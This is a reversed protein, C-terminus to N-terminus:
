PSVRKLAQRSLEHKEDLETATVLAEYAGAYDQVKERCLGLFCYFDVSPLARPIDGQRVLTEILTHAKDFENNRYYKKALGMQELSKQLPQDPLLGQTLAEIQEKLRDLQDQPKALKIAAQWYLKAQPYNGSLYCVQGVVNLNSVNDPRKRRALELWRRAMVLHEQVSLSEDPHLGLHFFTTGLKHLLGFNEPDLYLMIRLLATKRKLAPAETNKIDLVMLQSGLDAILFPYAQRLIDAYDAAYDCDPFSCLYEYLADGLLRESPMATADTPIDNVFLPLPIQPLSMEEGEGVSLSMGAPPYWFRFTQLDLPNQATESM